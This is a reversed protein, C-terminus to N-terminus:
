EIDAQSELEPIGKVMDTKVFGPHIMTVIINEKMEKLDVALTKGFSNLAAKSARYGYNQGSKNDEISGLRSAIFIIRPKEVKSRRLCPLLKRTLYIQGVANIRM